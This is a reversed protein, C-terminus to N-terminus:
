NEHSHIEKRNSTSGLPLNNEREDVILTAPELARPTDAQITREIELLLEHDPDAQAPAAVTAATPVVPIRGLLVFAAFLLAIVAPVLTTTLRSRTESKQRAAEIRLAQQQWFTEPRATHERNANAFRRLVDQLRDRETQCPPCEALHHEAALDFSVVAREVLPDHPNDNSKM